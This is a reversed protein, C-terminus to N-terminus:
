ITCIKYEIILYCLLMIFTAFAGIYTAIKLTRELKM